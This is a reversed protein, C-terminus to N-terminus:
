GNCIASQLNGISPNTLSSHLDGYQPTGFRNALPRIGISRRNNSHPDLSSIDNVITLRCPLQWRGSSSGIAVRRDPSRWDFISLGDISLGDIPLRCEVIQLEVVGM